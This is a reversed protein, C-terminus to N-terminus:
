KRSCFIGGIGVIICRYYGYMLLGLVLVIVFFSVTVNVGVDSVRGVDVVDGVAIEVTKTWGSPSTVVCRVNSVTCNVDKWTITRGKLDGCPVESLEEVSVVSEACRIEAEYDIPASYRISCEYTGNNPYYVFTVNTDECVDRVYVEECVRQWRRLVADKSLLFTTFNDRGIYSDVGNLDAGGGNNRVTRSFNSNFMVEKMDIEVMASSTENDIDYAIIISENYPFATRLGMLSQFLSGMIKQEPEVDSVNIWPYLLMMKGNDFRALEKTVDTELVILTRNTSKEYTAMLQLVFGECEETDDMCTVVSSCMLCICVISWRDKAAMINDFVFGDCLVALSLISVACIVWCSFWFRLLSSKISVYVAGYSTCRSVVFLM